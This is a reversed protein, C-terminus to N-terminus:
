KLICYCRLSPTKRVRQTRGGAIFVLCRSRVGRRRWRDRRCFVRQRNGDKRHFTNVIQWSLSQVCLLLVCCPLLFYPHPKAGPWPCDGDVWRQNALSLRSSFAVVRKQTSERHKDRAQRPLSGGNLCCGLNAGSVGVATMRLSPTPM